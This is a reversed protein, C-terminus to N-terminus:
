HPRFSVKFSPAAASAPEGRRFFAERGERNITQLFKPDLAGVPAIGRSEIYDRKARLREALASRLRQFDRALGDLSHPNDQMAAQFHPAATPPKMMPMVSASPPSRSPSCSPWIPMENIKM